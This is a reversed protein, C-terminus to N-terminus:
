KFTIITVKSDRDKSLSIGYLINIDESTKSKIINILSDVEKINLSENSEIFLIVAKADINIKEAEELKCSLLNITKGYKVFDLIDSSDISILSKENIMSSIANIFNNVSDISKAYFISKYSNYVNENVKDTNLCVCIINSPLPELLYLPHLLDSDYDFVLIILRYPDFDSLSYDSYSDFDYFLDYANSENIKTGFSIVLPKM